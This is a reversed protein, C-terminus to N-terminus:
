KGMMISRRMPAVRAGSEEIITFYVELQEPTYKEMRNDLKILVEQEKAFALAEALTPVREGRYKLSHSLGVDYTLLDAYSTDALLLDGQVKGGDSTRCTRTLTKDHYLVCVGDKTFSPDLEIVDYGQAVALRYAAMTNEPAECAVGRHAQYKM